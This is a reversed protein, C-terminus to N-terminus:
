FSRPKHNIVNLTTTGKIGALKRIKKTVIDSIENYTPAVVNCIIQSSFLVDGDIVETIKSLNQLTDVEKGKECDLLIYAYSMYTDLVDKGDIKKVITNKGDAMLTYTARIRPLKRIKKTIIDKLLDESSVELKTLIDYTGFVGTAMKVSDISRLSSLVYDESGSECTILVYAKAM